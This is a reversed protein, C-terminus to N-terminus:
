KAFMVELISEWDFRRAVRDWRWGGHAEVGKECVEVACSGPWLHLRDVEGVRPGSKRERAFIWSVGGARARRVHWAVQEPRLKVRKGNVVKLEVWVEKGRRCINVDPIGRGTSGTEIRQHHIDPPIDLQNKFLTWFDKELNM